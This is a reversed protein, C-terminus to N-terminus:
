EFYGFMTAPPIEFKSKGVRRTAGSGFCYLGGMNIGGAICAIYALEELNDPLRGSVVDTM